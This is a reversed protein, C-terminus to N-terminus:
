SNTRLGPTASAPVTYNVTTTKTTGPTITGYSCSFNSGTTTACSGDGGFAGRTFGSSPWTDVISVSQADSPGANTVKITYTYTNGDGATVTTQYDTKTVLVDASTAGTTDDTATNNGSTSDTPSSVTVSNTRLGPTASAPVTYNVTTTKTTGPTITGYSCSFNSGTTTACSGDGGFAGRTFGSSPWTDVISVSQADSPGANTVKITYTYTNGDGA